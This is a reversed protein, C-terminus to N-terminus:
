SGMTLGIFQINFRGRGYKVSCSCLTALTLDVAGYEAVPNSGCNARDSHGIIRAVPWVTGAARGGAVACALCSRAVHWENPADFAHNRYCGDAHISPPAATANRTVMPPFLM